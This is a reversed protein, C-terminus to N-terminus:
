DVEGALLATLMLNTGQFQIFRVKLGEKDFYGRDAAVRFPLASWNAGSTWGINIDKGQAAKAHSLLAVVSLISLVFGLLLFRQKM